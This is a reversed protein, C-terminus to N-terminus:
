LVHKYSRRTLIHSIAGKSVGFMLALNGINMRDENWYKKTKRDNEYSERIFRIEEDSFMKKVGHAQSM